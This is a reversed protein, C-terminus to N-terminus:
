IVIFDIVVRVVKPVISGGGGESSNNFMLEPVKRGLCFARPISIKSDWNAKCIRTNMLKM